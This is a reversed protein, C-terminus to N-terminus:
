KKASASVHDIDLNILNRLNDEEQIEMAILVYGQVNWVTNEVAAHWRAVKEVNARIKKALKQHSFNNKSYLVMIFFRKLTKYVTSCM